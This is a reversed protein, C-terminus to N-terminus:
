KRKRRRKSVIFGSIAGGVIGCITCFIITVIPQFTLFNLLSNAFSPTIPIGLSTCAVECPKPMLFVYYNTIGIILGTIAGSKLSHAIFGGVFGSILFLIIIIEVLLNTNNANFKPLIGFSIFSLASGVAIGLLIYIVEKQLKSMAM